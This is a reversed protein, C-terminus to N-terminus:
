TPAPNGTNMLISVIKDVNELPLHKIKYGSKRDSYVYFTIDCGGSLRQFPNQSVKIHQIKNFNIISKTFNLRKFFCINVAKDYLTLASKKQAAIRFVLWGCMLVLGVIVLYEYIVNSFVIQEFFIMVFVIAVIFWFPIAIYAFLSTAKPKIFMKPPLNQKALQPIANFLIEEIEQKKHPPIVLGDNKKSRGITSLYVTSFGFLNMLISQRFIIANIAQKNIIFASKSIIGKHTAITSDGSYLKFFANKFFDSMLGFLWGIIMLGAIIALIPPVGLIIIYHSIDIQDYIMKGYQEGFLSGIKRILLAFILLGSLFNSRTACMFLIRLNGGKYLPNKTCYFLLETALTNAKNKTMYLYNTNLEGKHSPAIVQFKATRFILLLLSQEINICHILKKNYILKQKYVLGKKIVFIRSLNKYRISKYEAVAFLIILIIFLINFGHKAIIAGISQPKFILNQLLPIILLWLFRSLYSYM